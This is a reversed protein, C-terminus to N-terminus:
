CRRNRRTRSTLMRVWFSQEAFFNPHRSWAWLGRTCFGRKRDAKTWDLRAGIWQEEAKYGGHKWAHYAFQQNDATFEWALDLLALAGLLYDSRRLPVPGQRVATLTPAAILLLLINQIIAPVPLSISGSIRMRPSPGIFTFNVIQFLWPPIKQRLVAWRYDEDSSCYPALTLLTTLFRVITLHPSVPQIPRSSLHQLISSVDLYGIICTNMIEYLADELFRM